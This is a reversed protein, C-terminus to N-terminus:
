KAHVIYLELYDLISDDEYVFKLHKTQNIAKIMSTNNISSFKIFVKESSSMWDYDKLTKTSYRMSPALKVKNFENEGATSAYFSITDTSWWKDVQKGKVKAVICEINEFASLDFQSFTIMENKAVQKDYQGQVYEYGYKNKMSKITSSVFEAHATFENTSKAGSFKDDGGANLTTIKMTDKNFGKCNFYDLPVLTDNKSMVAKPESDELTINIAAKDTDKKSKIGLRANTDGEAVEFVIEQSLGNSNNFVVKKCQKGVCINGVSPENAKAIITVKDGQIQKVRFDTIKLTPTHPTPKLEVNTTSTDVGNNNKLDVKFDYAKGADLGDVPIYQVYNNDENLVVPIKKEVGNQTYTIFGKSAQNAKVRLITSSDTTKGPVPKFSNIKLAPPPVDKEKLKVKTESKDTGNGNELEVRFDYVKGADLEDITIVQERKNEDTLSVPISQEVGNQTYYLFGESAQNAKVKIITSSDTTKGPVPSFATIKLPNITPEDEIDVTLNSTAVGNENELSLNFDHAGVPLEITQVTSSLSDDIDIEIIEQRGDVTYTIVGSAAQNTNIVLTAVGANTEDVYFDTIELNTVVPIPPPTAPNQSSTKTKLNSDFLRSNFNCSVLLSISMLLFINKM